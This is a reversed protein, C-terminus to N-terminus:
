ASLISNHKTLQQATQKTGSSSSKRTEAARVSLLREMVMQTYRCIGSIGDLLSQKPSDVCYETSTSLVGSKSSEKICHFTGLILKM